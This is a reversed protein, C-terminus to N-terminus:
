RRAGALPKAGTLAQASRRPKFERTASCTFFSSGNGYPSRNALEIAADLDEMRMVDLMGHLM